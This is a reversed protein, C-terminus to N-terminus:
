GTGIGDCPAEHWRTSSRPGLCRFRSAIAVAVEAVAVETVAVETVAVTVAVIEPQVEAVAATVASRVASSSDVGVFPNARGRSLGAM